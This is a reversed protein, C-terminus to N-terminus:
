VRLHISVIFMLISVSDRLISVLSPLLQTKASVRMLISVSTFTDICSVSYRYESQLISVPLWLPQMKLNHISVLPLTDICLCPFQLFCCKHLSWRSYKKVLHEWRSSGHDLSYILWELVMLSSFHLSFCLNHKFALGKM